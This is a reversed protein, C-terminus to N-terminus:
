PTIVTAILHRAMQKVAFRQLPGFYWAPDLKRDYRVTLTVRTKQDAVPSLEISTGLLRLYNSLYSDDSLFETEIKDPEVHKILLRASGQHTNTLFWRRYTYEIVHVDGENLSGAFVKSPMEFLRLFGSPENVFEIPQALKQHIGAPDSDVVATATVAEFRPQEWGPMAGEMALAAVALGSAIHVSLGSRGLKLRCYDVIFAILVFLLFIPLFMLVCIFGEFLVISSGLMVVLNYMLLRGYRAGLSAGDQHPLYLSLVVAVLYPIGIYLLASEHFDYGILLRVLLSAAGIIILLLFPSLPQNRKVNM